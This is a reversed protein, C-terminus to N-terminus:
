YTAFRSKDQRAATWNGSMLHGLLVWPLAFSVFSQNQATCLSLLYKRRPRFIMYLVHKIKLM